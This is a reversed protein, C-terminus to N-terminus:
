NLYNQMFGALALGPRHIDTVTIPLRGEDIGNVLELQLLERTDDLLGRISLTKKPPKSM